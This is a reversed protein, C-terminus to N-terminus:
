ICLTSMDVVSTTIILGQRAHVPPNCYTLFNTPKERFGSQQLSGASSRQYGYTHDVM